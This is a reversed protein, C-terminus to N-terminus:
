KQSGSRWLRQCEIPYDTLLADIGAERVRQWNEPEHGAFLKGVAFVRKGMGHIAKVEDATPIFRVYIWDANKDTLAKAVDKRENALVAVPTMADAAKLKARLKANEITLGICMVQQLVGHKKALAVVEGALTEDEVKIDLCVLTDIGVKKMLAFVAELTPVREGAFEPAFWRGADLKQLEALTYQAVSGKGNTTRKVDDDHLVVLVGDKTRRIDLEFGLRLNLCAAFGALTNEPAHRMLGRHGVVRPLKAADQSHADFSSIMLAPLAVSIVIPMRFNM